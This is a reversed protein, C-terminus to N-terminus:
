PAKADRGLLEATTGPILQLDQNDALAIVEILGSAPDAVPAVYTVKAVRERVSGNQSWRLTAEQGVRFHDPDDVSFSGRFRIQTVDVLVILPEQPPVTEGEAVKVQTVVGAIPALLRRRAYNEQALDLDIAERRKTERLALLQAQATMLAIEEDQVQKQSVGGAGLVAQAKAVQQKLIAVRQELEVLASRDQLAIRKSDRDLAEIRRDLTILMDGRAVRSGESVALAKVQGTVPMSLTVTAIPETIGTSSAAAWALAHSMGWLVMSLVCARM